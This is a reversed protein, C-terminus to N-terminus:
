YGLPFSFSNNLFIRKKNFSCFTCNFNYANVVTEKNKGVKVYNNVKALLLFTFFCFLSLFFIESTLFFISVQKWFFRKELLLKWSFFNWLEKRNGVSCCFKKWSWCKLFPKKFFSYKELTATRVPLPVSATPKRDPASTTKSWFTSWFDM